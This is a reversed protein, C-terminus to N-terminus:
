VELLGYGILRDRCARGAEAHRKAPKSAASLWRGMQECSISVEWAGLKLGQASGTAVERGEGRALYLLMEYVARDAPHLAQILAHPVMLFGQEGWRTDLEVDKATKMRSPPALQNVNRRQQRVEVRDM